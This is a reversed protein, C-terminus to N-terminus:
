EIVGRNMALHSNNYRRDDTIEKILTVCPPIPIPVDESEVEAELSAQDDWFDYVDLEYVLGAHTFIHRDKEITITHKKKLPLLESYEKYSIEKEYERRTMDSLREKYTYVYSTRDGEVIKRIRGGVFDGDSKLYTQSIHKVRYDPMQRLAEIDPYKILFRREIELPAKTIDFTEM